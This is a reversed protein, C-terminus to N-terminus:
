SRVLITNVGNQVNTSVSVAWPSPNISSIGTFVGSAFALWGHVTSGSGLAPQMDGFTFGSPSTPATPGATIESEVRRNSVFTIGLFDGTGWGPSLNTPDYTFVNGVIAIPATARAGSIRLMIAEIQRSLAVTFDLTSGTDAVEAVKWAGPMYGVNFGTWGTPGTVAEQNHSQKTVLILLDGVQTGEPTPITHTTAATAQEYKSWTTVGFPPPPSGGRRRAASAIVGGAMFLGSM